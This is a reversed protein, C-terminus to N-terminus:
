ALAEIWCLLADHGPKVRGNVDEAKRV